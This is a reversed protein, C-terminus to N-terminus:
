LALTYLINRGLKKKTFGVATLVEDGKKNEPIELFSIEKLGLGKLWQILDKVLSIHTTQDIKDSLAWYLVRGTQTNVAAFGGFESGGNEHQLTIVMTQYPQKQENEVVSMINALPDILEKEFKQALESIAKRDKVNGDYGVLAIAKIKIPADDKKIVAAQAKKDKDDKQISAPASPAAFKFRAEIDRLAEGALTYQYQTLDVSKRTFGLGLLLRAAHDNDKNEQNIIPKGPNLKKLQHIAYLLLQKDAGNKMGDDTLAWYYLRNDSFRIIVFGHLQDNQNTLIFTKCNPESTSAYDLEKLTGNLEKLRLKVLAEFQQGYLKKDYSRIEFVEKVQADAKAVPQASEKQAAAEKDDKKAPQSIIQIKEKLAVNDAKRKKIYEQYTDFDKKQLDQSISDLTEKQSIRLLEKELDAYDTLIQKLVNPSPQVSSEIFINIQKRLAVQRDYLANVRATIEKKLREIYEPQGKTYSAIFHRVAKINPMSTNGMNQVYDEADKQSKESLASYEFILENASEIVKKPDLIADAFRHKDFNAYENLLKDYLTKFKVIAPNTKWSEQQQKPVAGFMSQSNLGIITCLLLQTINIKM